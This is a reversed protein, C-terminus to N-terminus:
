PKTEEGYDDWLAGSNSTNGDWGGGIYGWREFTHVGKHISSHISAGGFAPGWTEGDKPSSRLCFAIEAKPEPPTTEVAVLATKVRVVFPEWVSSRTQNYRDEANRLFQSVVTNVKSKQFGNGLGDATKRVSWCSIWVPLIHKEDSTLQGGNLLNEYSLRQRERIARKVEEDPEPYRFRLVFDAQKILKRFVKQFADRLAMVNEANDASSDLKTDSFVSDRLKKREGKRWLIHEKIRHQVEALAECFGTMPFGQAQVAELADKFDWSWSWSNVPPLRLETKSPRAQPVGTM